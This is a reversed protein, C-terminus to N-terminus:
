VRKGQRPAVVHLSRVLKLLSAPTFPKSILGDARMSAEVGEAARANGSVVVIPISATRSESRLRRILENGSMVPMMLDTTIVDPAEFDRVRDLAAQGNGAEAVEYGSLEFIARLLTRISPDDDVVLIRSM